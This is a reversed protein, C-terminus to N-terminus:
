IFFMKSFQLKFQSEAFTKLDSEDDFYKPNILPHEAPDASKLLIDGRTVPRNLVPVVHFSDKGKAKEYYKQLVNPKFNFAKEFGNVLSDSVAYGTSIYQIDPWHKEGALVARSSSVFGSADSGVTNLVGKGRLWFDLFTSLTLDRDPHYSVTDNMIFPGVFSGIHDQLNKGM